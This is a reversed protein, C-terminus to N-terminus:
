QAFGFTNEVVGPLLDYISGGLAAEFEEQIDFFAQWKRTTFDNPGYRLTVDLLRKEMMVPGSPLCM